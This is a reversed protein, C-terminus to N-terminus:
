WAAPPLRELRARLPTDQGCVEDLFAARENPSQKESAAAFISDEDMTLRGECLTVSDVYDIRLERTTEIVAKLFISCEGAAEITRPQWTSRCGLAPM